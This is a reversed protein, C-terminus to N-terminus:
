HFSHNSASNNLISNGSKLAGNINKFYEDILEPKLPEMLRPPVPYQPPSAGAAANVKM